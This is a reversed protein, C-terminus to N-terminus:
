VFWNRKRQKAKLAALAEGAHTLADRAFDTVEDAFDTVQDLAARLQFNHNLQMKAVEQLREIDTCENIARTM